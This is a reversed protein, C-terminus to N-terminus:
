RDHQGRWYLSLGYLRRLQVGLDKVTFRRSVHFPNEEAAEVFEKNPLGLMPSGEPFCVIDPEHAAAKELLKVMEKLNREVTEQVTGAKGMGSFSVSAVRVYRVM